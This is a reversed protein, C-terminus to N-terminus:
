HHLLDTLYDIIMSLTLMQKASWVVKSQNTYNDHTEIEITINNDDYSNTANDHIILSM